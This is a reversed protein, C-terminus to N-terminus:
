VLVSVDILERILTPMIAPVGVARLKIKIVKCIKIM